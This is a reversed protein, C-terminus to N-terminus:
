QVWINIATNVHVEVLVMWLWNFASRVTVGYIKLDMKIDNELRRRPKGVPVKLESKGILINHINRTERNTSRTCRDM